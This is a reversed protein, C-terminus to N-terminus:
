SVRAVDLWLIKLVLFNLVNRRRHLVPCTIKHDFKQWVQSFWNIGVVLHPIIAYCMVPAGCTANSQKSLLRRWDIQPRYNWWGERRYFQIYSPVFHKLWFLSWEDRWASTKSTSHTAENWLYLAEFAVTSSFGSLIESHKVTQLFPALFWKLVRIQYCNRNWILDLVSLPQGANCSSAARQFQGGTDFNRM